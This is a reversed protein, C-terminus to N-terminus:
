QHGLLFETGRYDLVVGEATIQLVRVGEPTIDGERVKHMNIFAYREAPKLAYVHLDLHLEPLKGNLEAYNQVSAGEPAHQVTGPSSNVAPEQDAPNDGDVPAPQPDMAGAPATLESGPAAAAGTEPPAAAITAATTAPANAITAAATTTSLPAGPAAKPGDAPASTSRWAFWALVLVNVVLLAGVVLTWAPWRRQPAVVRMELLAPGAQRQREAESKKLADLIFSM